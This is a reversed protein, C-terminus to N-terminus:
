RTSCVSTKKRVTINSTRVATTMDLEIVPSVVGNLDPSCPTVHWYGSGEGVGGTFKGM